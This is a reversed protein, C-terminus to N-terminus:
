TYMGEPPDTTKKKTKYTSLMKVAADMDQPTITGKGSRGFVRRCHAIKTKDVLERISGAHDVLYKENNKIYKTIFSCEKNELTTNPMREMMALYIESLEKHTYKEVPIVWPFRRRLGDNVAFFDRDIEAEYGAIICIFKDGNETLNQCLTDICAKSFSDQTDSSRGDGLSYVEDLLLVGGFAKEVLAQTRKATQGLYSAIMNRRTGHVVKSTKCKGMASYLKALHNALTTKGVGPPGTIITHNLTADGPFSKRQAFSMVQYAIAKKAEKMGILSDIKELPKKIAELEQFDKFPTKKNEGILSIIDKISKPSFPVDPLNKNSFLRQAERQSAAPPPQGGNPVVRIPGSQLPRKKKTGGGGEATRPTDSDDDVETDEVEEEDESAGEGETGSGEELTYNSGANNKVANVFMGFLLNGLLKSAVEGQSDEEEGGSSEDESGDSNEADKTIEDCHSAKDEPCPPATKPPRAPGEPGKGSGKELAGGALNHLKSKEQPLEEDSSSCSDSGDAAARASKNQLRTSKRRRKVQKDSSCTKNKSNRGRKKKDPSKSDNKELDGSDAGSSM